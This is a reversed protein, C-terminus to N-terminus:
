EVILEGRMGAEEHGPLSCVFPYRGPEVVRLSGIAADGSDAGLVFGLEPVTLDHFLQGENRLSLNVPDGLPITLLVPEFTFDAAVVEITRAGAVPAAATDGTSTRMYGSMHEGVLPRHWVASSGAVGVILGAVLLVAVLGVLSRVVADDTVM